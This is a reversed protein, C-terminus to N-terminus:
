LMVPEEKALKELREIERNLYWQAKYLDELANSKYPARLVYKITNGLSFNLGWSEIVDIAEIGQNYHSPHNIVEKEQEPEEFAICFGEKYDCKNENKYICESCISM